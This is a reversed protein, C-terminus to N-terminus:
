GNLCTVADLFPNHSPCHVNCIPQLTLEVCPPMREQLQQKVQNGASCWVCTNLAMIVIPQIEPYEM